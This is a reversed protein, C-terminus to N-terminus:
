AVLCIQSIMFIVERCNSLNVMVLKMIGYGMWVQLIMLLLWNMILKELYQLDQKQRGAFFSKKIILLHLVQNLLRLIAKMLFPGAVKVTYAYGKIYLTAIIQM